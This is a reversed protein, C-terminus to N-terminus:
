RIARKAAAIADKANSYRYNNWEYTVHEHATIGLRRLEEHAGSLVDDVTEVVSPVAGKLDDIVTSEQKL